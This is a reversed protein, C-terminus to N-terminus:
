GVRPAGYSSVLIIYVDGKLFPEFCAFYTAFVSHMESYLRPCARCGGSVEDVGRGIPGVELRM